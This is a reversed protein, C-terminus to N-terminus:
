FCFCRLHGVGGGGGGVVVVVVVAVEGHTRSMRRGRGLCRRGPWSAVIFQPALEVFQKGVHFESALSGGHHIVM